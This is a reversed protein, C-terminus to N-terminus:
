IRRTIAAETAGAVFSVERAGRALRNCILAIDRNAAGQLELFSGTGPSATCSELVATNVNEFRVVPDINPRRTAVRMVALDRAGDVHLVPGKAANVVVNDFSAGDVNTCSIGEAAGDVVVDSFTLGQVPREPLGEILAARQAGTVVIQSFHFNRFAPTADNVPEARHRDGGTYFMTVTLPEAVNRMVFNSARVNEVSRGRGRATKFRLGRDTGDCVCNSIALNKVGGSTESGVGVGCHGSRFVCNTVTINESPTARESYKYGSKIVICDDGVSIFCNAIRVDKCSDPDIGDTNPSDPAALITVGDIAVNECTVPHITWSPSNLLHLGGIFVNRCSYLNILRPRPWRLPSGPPNEPERETIGLRRRMEKVTQFAEWWPAGQGDLTGQGTIFVNEKDICTFLSAYVTRDIGEWRGPIAPVSTFDTTFAVTAGAMVEVHQNAQLFIPGTLYRGAPFVIKGGGAAACANVAKQIATTCLTRGDGVAGFDRVDFFLPPHSPEQPLAGRAVAPTPLSVAAAAAVGKMFERRPHEM